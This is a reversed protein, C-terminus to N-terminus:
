TDVVTHVPDNRFERVMYPCMYIQYCMQRMKQFVFDRRLTYYQYREVFYYYIQEMRSGIVYCEDCLSNQIRFYKSREQVLCDFENILKREVIEKDPPVDLTEVEQRENSERKRKM